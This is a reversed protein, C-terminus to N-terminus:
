KSIKLRSTIHVRRSVEHTLAPAAITVAITPPV